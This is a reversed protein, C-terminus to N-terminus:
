RSRGKLFGRIRRKLKHLLVHPAYAGWRKVWAMHRTAAQQTAAPSELKALRLGWKFGRLIRGRDYAYVNTRPKTTFPLAPPTRGMRRWAETCVSWRDRRENVEQCDDLAKKLEVPTCAVVGAEVAAQLAREGRDTHVLVLSIGKPDNTLGHPDGVSLDSLVNLKDFCLRCRPLTFADKIAMREARDLPHQAGDATGILVDGPWGRQSKDRFRFNTVDDRAMGATNVLHDMAGYSLTRDCFLGITLCVQAYAGHIQGNRLSHMQCPIGVFAILQNATRERPLARCAPVPCYKSGGAARIEDPDNTCVCAPRLPDEGPLKSVVAHTVNGSALQQVLLATVAGGSQAGQRLAADTAHCFYAARTTGRFPNMEADSCGPELHSGGCVKACLGCHVCRAEDLSAFLAGWPTEAMSIAERPCLGACAGCGTCLGNAVVSRIDANNDM